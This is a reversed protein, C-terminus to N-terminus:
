AVAEARGPALRKRREAYWEWILMAWVPVYEIWVIGNDFLKVMGRAALHFRLYYLPLLATLLMLSFRPRIALLPVIWVYYWPFQTPSLLFAAAVAFLARNCLDLPGSIPRRALWAIWAVLLAAVILRAALRAHAPDGIVWKVPRRVLMFAADNMEWREGYAVFGSTPDLGAAYLPVLMAASLLAFVALAAVLRKPEGFVPRLVFPLLVVPWVKTGVGLALVAAAWVIRRRLVLLVAGLVFPLALVDLHSSNFLEKVVLPNWWYVAVWLLPLGARRLIALLLVVVAVDLGLLVIRWAIISWPRIVHALAFSAQAVPPYITRIRPHNVREAVKGSDHALEVLEAPVGESGDLVDKPAYAYPNHGEAVVGGDWLYRYFDDELIPLSPITVLRMLAGAVLVWVLFGKSPATRRLGWGAFLYLAGAAVLVSVMLLIPRRLWDSGYM